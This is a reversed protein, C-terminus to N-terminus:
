LNFLSDLHCKIKATHRRYNAPNSTHHYREIFVNSQTTSTHLLVNGSQAGLYVLCRRHVLSQQPFEWVGALVHCNFVVLEHRLPVRQQGLSSQPRLSKVLGLTNLQVEVVVAAEPRHRQSYRQAALNGGSLSYTFLYTFVCRKPRPCHRHIFVMQHQRSM